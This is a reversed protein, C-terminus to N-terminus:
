GELLKYKAFNASFEKIDTIEFAISIYTSETKFIVYLFNGKIEYFEGEFLRSAICLDFHCSFTSFIFCGSDSIYYRQTM